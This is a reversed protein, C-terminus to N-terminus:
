FDCVRNRKEKFSAPEVGLQEKRKLVCAVQLISQVFIINRELIVWHQSVLLLYASRYILWQSCNINFKSPLFDCTENIITALTRHSSNDPTPFLEIGDCPSGFLKNSFWLSLKVVPQPGDVIALGENTTLFYSCQLGLEFHFLNFLNSTPM